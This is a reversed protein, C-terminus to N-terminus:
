GEPSVTECWLSNLDNQQVRIIRSGVKVMNNNLSNMGKLSISNFWNTFSLTLSSETCSINVNCLICPCVDCPCIKHLLYIRQQSRKVPSQTNICFNVNADFLSVLCKYSDVIQIDKIHVTSATLITNSKRFYLM